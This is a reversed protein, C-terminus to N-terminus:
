NMCCELYSAIEAPKRIPVPISECEDEICSRAMLDLTSFGTFLAIM